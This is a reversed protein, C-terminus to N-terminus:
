QGRTPLLRGLASGYEAPNRSQIWLTGKGAFECVLGEGSLFSAIWGSAAKGIRFPLDTQWAVLHGTDVVFTGDVDIRELAGYAGVIVSGTGGARLVFLGDGAFFTKFGGLKTEIQVGPESAVYASSQLFWGPGGADLVMLDGPLPPALLVQGPAHAAHFTNRFFSEGGFLRKIGKMIGGAGPQVTLSPTMAVMAGSEAILSEGPLLNVEALAQAPRNHLQIDMNM